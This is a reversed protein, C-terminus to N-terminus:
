HKEGSEPGGAAVVAAEVAGARAAAREAAAPTTVLRELVAEGERLEQTDDALMLTLARGLPGGSAEAAARRRSSYASVLRPLLVRYVGVLRDVTDTV